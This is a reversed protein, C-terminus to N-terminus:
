KRAKLDAVRDARTRAIPNGRLNVPANKDAKKDDTKKTDKNENSM